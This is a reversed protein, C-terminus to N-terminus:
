DFFSSQIGSVMSLHNTPTPCLCGIVIDLADNLVSDILHTHASDFWVPTCHEVTSYVLSLAATHLTKAGAGWRSGALRRLM